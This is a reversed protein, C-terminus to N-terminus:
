RTRAAPRGLERQVLAHPRVADHELHAGDRQRVATEQAGEGVDGLALAAGVLDGVHRMVIREGTEGVAHQQAVADLVRERALAAVALAERQQQDIEVAELLDVVREAVRGAVLQQTLHRLPQAAAHALDVRDRPEAAVLERDQLDRGLAAPAGLCQRLADDLHDARGIREVAAWAMIPALMPMARECSLAPCGLLQEVVGIEREIPDLGLPAVM